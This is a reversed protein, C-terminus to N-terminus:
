WSDESVSQACPRGRAWRGTGARRRPRRRAEGDHRRAEVLRDHLLEDVAGERGEGRGADARAGDVQVPHGPRELQREGRVDERAGATVGADRAHAHTMLPSVGCKSKTAPWAAAPM